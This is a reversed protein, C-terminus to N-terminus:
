SGSPDVLNGALNRITPLPHCEISKEVKFLANIDSLTNLCILNGAYSVNAKKGTLSYLLITYSFM